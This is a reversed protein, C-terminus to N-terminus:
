GNDSLEKMYNGTALLSDFEGCDAWYCEPGLVEVNLCGNKLYFKNVDTIELEGRASPKMMKAFKVVFNDFFYLGTVAYNSKPMTPKEEISIVKNNEFEVVGFREPDDVQCAFVTAGVIRENARKLLKDFNPYHFINDGLILAVDSDGIFHEGIIFAEAIGKPENQVEYHINLGLDDGTDLLRVFSYLDKPTTIILVETIGAQKLTALPYYVLPKDYVPLLQKSCVKTLPDLRTGAGGALIIGVRKRKSM